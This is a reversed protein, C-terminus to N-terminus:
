GDNRRWVFLLIYCKNKSKKFDTKQAMFLHFLCFNWQLINVRWIIVSAQLGLPKFGEKETKEQKKRLRSISNANAWRLSLTCRNLWFAMSEGTGHNLYYLLLSTHKHVYYGVWAMSTTYKENTQGYVQVCACLESSWHRSKV